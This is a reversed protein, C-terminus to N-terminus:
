LYKSTYTQEIYDRNRILSQKAALAVEYILQREYNNCDAVLQVFDNCFETSNKKQNGAVIENLSVDLADAILLLSELSVRAGREIKSIYGDSLGTAEALHEQTLEHRKRIERIRFGILNYNVIM